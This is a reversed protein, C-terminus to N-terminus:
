VAHGACLVGMLAAQGALRGILNSVPAEDGQGTATISMGGLWDSCSSDLTGQVRIRYVVPTWLKLRQTTM